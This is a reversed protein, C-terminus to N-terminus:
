EYPKQYFTIYRYSSKLAELAKPIEKENKTIDFILFGCKLIENIYQDQNSEDVTYLIDESKNHFYYERTGIIEYNYAFGTDKQKKDDTDMEEDMGLAEDMEGGEGAM